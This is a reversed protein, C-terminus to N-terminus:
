GHFFINNERGGNLGTVELKWNAKHVQLENESPQVFYSVADFHLADSAVRWRVLFSSSKPQKSSKHLRSHIKFPIHKRVKGLCSQSYSAVEVDGVNNITIGEHWAMINTSYM